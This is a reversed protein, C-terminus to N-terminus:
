AGMGGEYDDNLDLTTDHSCFQHLHHDEPNKWSQDGFLVEFKHTM